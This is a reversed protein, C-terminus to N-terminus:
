PAADKRAGDHGACNAKQSAARHSALRDVTEYGLSMALVLLAGLLIPPAPLPLDAVRAIAGVSLALILGALIRGM